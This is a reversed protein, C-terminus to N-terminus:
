VEKIFWIMDQSPDKFTQTMYPRSGVKSFLRIVHPRSILTWSFWGTFGEEKLEQELKLLDKFLAKRSQFSSFVERDNIAMSPSMIHVYNNLIDLRQWNEM